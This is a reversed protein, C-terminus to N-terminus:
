CFTATNSVRALVRNKIVVQLRMQLSSKVKKYRQMSKHQMEFKVYAYVNADDVWGCKQPNETCIKICKKLSLMPRPPPVPSTKTYGM